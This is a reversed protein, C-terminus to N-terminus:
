VLHQMMWVILAVLVIALIKIFISGHSGLNNTPKENVCESNMLQARIYSKDNEQSIAMRSEIFDQPSGGGNLFDIVEIMADWKEDAYRKDSYPVGPPLKCSLSIRVMEGFRSKDM